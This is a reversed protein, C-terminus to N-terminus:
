AGASAGIAQNIELEAPRSGMKTRLGVFFYDSLIVIFDLVSRM